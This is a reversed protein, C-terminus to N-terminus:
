ISRGCTAHYTLEELKRFKVLCPSGPHLQSGDASDRRPYLSPCRKQAVELHYIDIENWVMSSPVQIDIGPCHLELATTVILNLIM